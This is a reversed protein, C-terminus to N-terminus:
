QKPSYAERVESLVLWKMCKMHNASICQTVVCPFSLLENSEQNNEEQAIRIGPFLNQQGEEQRQTICMLLPLAAAGEMLEKGFHMNTQLADRKICIYVM